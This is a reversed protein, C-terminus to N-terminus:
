RTARRRAARAAYLDLTANVEALLGDDRGGLDAHLRRAVRRRAVGVARADSLDEGTLAALARPTAGAPPGEPGSGGAGGAEAGGDRGLRLVRPSGLELWTRLTRGGVVCDTASVGDRFWLTIRRDSLGGTADVTVVAVECAIRDRWRPPEPVSAADVVTAQLALAGDVVVSLLVHRGDPALDGRMALVAAQTRSRWLTPVVGAAAIAAAAAVGCVVVGTGAAGLDVGSAAGVADLATAGAVSGVVTALALRRRRAAVLAGARRGVGADGM